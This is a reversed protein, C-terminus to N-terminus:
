CANTAAKVERSRNQLNHIAIVFYRASRETCSADKIKDNDQMALAIAILTQLKELGSKRGVKQRIM